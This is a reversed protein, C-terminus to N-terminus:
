IEVQSTGEFICISRVDPLTEICVFLEQVSDSRVLDGRFFLSETFHPAISKDADLLVHRAGSM